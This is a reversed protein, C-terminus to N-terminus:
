PEFPFGPPFQGEAAEQWREFVYHRGLSQMLLKAIALPVLLALIILVILFASM